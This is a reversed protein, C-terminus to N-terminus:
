NQKENCFLSLCYGKCATELYQQFLNDNIHGTPALYVHIINYWVKMLIDPWVLIIEQEGSGTCKYSLLLSCVINDNIEQM